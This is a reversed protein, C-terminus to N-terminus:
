CWCNENEAKHGAAKPRKAPDRWWKMVGQLLWVMEKAGSSPWLTGKRAAAGFESKESSFSPKRIRKCHQAWSSRSACRVCGRWLRSPKIKVASLLLKVKEQNCFASGFGLAPNRHAQLVRSTCNRSLVKVRLLFFFDNVDREGAKVALNGDAGAM